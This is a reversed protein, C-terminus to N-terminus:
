DFGFHVVPHEPFRKVRECKRLRDRPGAGVADRGAGCDILDVGGSSGFIQDDEGGAKVTDRGPGPLILDRGRGASIRDKGKGGEAVDRRGGLRIQDAGDSGFAYMGTVTSRVVDKGAGPAAFAFRLDLPGTMEPGGNLDVTDNGKGTKFSPSVQRHREVTIDVDPETLELAVNLNMGADPGLRGARFHDGAGTGHIVLEGAEAAPSPLVTTEIESSPGEDTRGPALPGRALSLEAQTIGDSTLRYLIHETNNITPTATGCDVEEFGADGDPQLAAIREGARRILAGESFQETVELVGSAADFECSVYDIGRSQASGAAAVAAFLAAGGVIGRSCRV